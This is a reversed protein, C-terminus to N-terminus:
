EPTQWRHGLAATPTDDAAFRRCWERRLKWADRRTDELATTEPPQRWVTAGETQKAKSSRMEM